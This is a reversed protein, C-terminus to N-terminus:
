RGLAALAQDRAREAVERNRRRVAEPADQSPEDRMRQPLQVPARPQERAIWAEPVEEPVEQHSVAGYVLTWARPVVRWIDYGGGGTALWRGGSLEHSLEHVRRAFHEVTATTCALDTLPDLRHTDCGHQSIIVDPRFARAVDPVVLEFCEIWSADDTGPLLPVNVSYGVGPGSGTETVFGTGPFLYEGSEHLSITLVQPTDYFLAQVGDGHHADGDVYLVRLGKQRFFACAVAVDNYVCFGSAQARMAHHLGGSPHFAHEFTGDLIGEAATLAGGVITAAAEHMGEFPPNDGPGFGFMRALSANTPNRSLSRVAAVYEPGHVAEIEEDTARRPPTIGSDPGDLMGLTRILDVTLVLRQSNLPHGGGFDYRLCEEGYILPYRM